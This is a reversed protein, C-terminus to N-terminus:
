DSGPTHGVTREGLPVTEHPAADDRPMAITSRATVSGAEDLTRLKLTPTVPRGTDTTPLTHAPTHMVAHLLNVAGVDASPAPAATGHGDIRDVELEEAHESALAVVFMDDGLTIEGASIDAETGPARLCGGGRADGRSVEFCFADSPAVQPSLKAPDIRSITYANGDTTVGSALQASVRDDYVSSQGDAVALTAGAAVSVSALFVGGALLIRSSRM